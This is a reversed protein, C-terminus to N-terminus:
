RRSRNMQACLWARASTWERKLTAPSIDLAEAAEEITLGVFYRLEVIRAQRADLHELDALMEDLWLVDQGPDQLTPQVDDISVKIAGGGRKHRRHARAHDVLVRRMMQAAIAFFHGRSEWGPQSQDMLRMYAENVLATPQLTHGNRERRLHSRALRRLEGHVLPILSDLAQRDGAKWAKLLLTVHSTDAM